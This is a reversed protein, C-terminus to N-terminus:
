GSRIEEELQEESPALLVKGAEERKEREKERKEERGKEEKREGM